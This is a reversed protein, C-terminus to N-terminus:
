PQLWFALTPYVPLNRYPTARVVCFGARAMGQIGFHGRAGLRMREIAGGNDYDADLIIVDEPIGLHKGAAWAWATAEPDSAQM